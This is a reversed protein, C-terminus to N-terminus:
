EAVTAISEKESQVQTVHQETVHSTQQKRPVWFKYTEHQPIRLEKVITEQESLSFQESYFLYYLLPKFTEKQRAVRIRRLQIQLVDKAVDLSISRIGPLLEIENLSQLSVINNDNDYISTCLQTVILSSNYIEWDLNPNSKKDNNILTMSIFDHNCNSFAFLFMDFYNIWEFREDIDGVSLNSVYFTLYRAVVKHLTSNLAKIEDIKHNLKCWEHNIYGSALIEAERNMMGAFLKRRSNAAAFSFDKNELVAKEM